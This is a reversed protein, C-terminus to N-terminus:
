PSDGTERPVAGCMIQGSDKSITDMLEHITRKTLSIEKIVSENDYGEKADGKELEEAYCKLGEVIRELDFYSLYIVM